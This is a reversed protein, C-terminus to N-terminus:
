QWCGQTDCVAWLQEQLPGVGARSSLGTGSLVLRVWPGPGSDGEARSPAPLVPKPGRHAARTPHPLTRPIVSHPRHLPHGRTSLSWSLCADDWGWRAVKGERAASYNPPPSGRGVGEGGGGLCGRRGGESTGMLPVDPTLWPPQHPRSGPPHPGRHAWLWGPIPHPPRLLLHASPLATLPPTPDGGAHGSEAARSVESPGM